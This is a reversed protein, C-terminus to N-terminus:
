NSGPPKTTSENPKIQEVLDYLTNELNGLETSYYEQAPHEKTGLKSALKNAQIAVNALLDFQKRSIPSDM